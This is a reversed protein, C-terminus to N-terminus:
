WVFGGLEMDEENVLLRGKSDFILAYRVQTVSGGAGGYMTPSENSAAGGAHQTGALLSNSQEPEPDEEIGMQVCSVKVGNQYCTNRGLSDKFVGTYPPEAKTRYLMKSYPSSKVKKPRPGKWEPEDVLDGGSGSALWSMAKELSKWDQGELVEPSEVHDPGAAVSNYNENDHFHMPLGRGACTGIGRPLPTGNPCLKKEWARMTSKADWLACCNNENVPLGYLKPHGCIHGEGKEKVFLCNGCNTGSVDKPLTVFDYKEAEKMQGRPPVEGGQEDLHKTSYPSLRVSPNNPYKGRMPAQQYPKPGKPPEQLTFQQRQEETWPVWGERGACTGTGPPMPTGDPCLHQNPYPARKTSFFKMYRVQRRYEEPLKYEGETVAGTQLGQQAIEEPVDVYVLRRGPVKAFARAVGPLGREDSFYAHEHPLEGGRTGRYMRRMGQAPSPPNEDEPIEHPIPAVPEDGATGWGHPTSPEEVKPEAPQASQGEEMDKKNFFRRRGVVPEERDKPKRTDVGSVPAYDPYEAWGPKNNKDVVGDWSDAQRGSCTDSGYPRPTGNPCTIRKEMVQELANGMPNKVLEMQSEFTNNQEKLRWEEDNQLAMDQPSKRREYGMRLRREGLIDPKVRWRNYAQLYFVWEQPYDNPIGASADLGPQIYGKGSSPIEGGIHHDGQEIGMETVIPVNHGDCSNTNRDRPTGDPCTQQSKIHLSKSAKPFRTNIVGEVIREYDLKGAYPNKRLEQFWSEEVIPNLQTALTNASSPDSEDLIDPRYHKLYSFISRHSELAYWGDWFERVDGGWAPTGLASGPIRYNRRDYVGAYFLQALKPEKPFPLEDTPSYGANLGNEYAELEDKEFEQRYQPEIKIDWKNERPQVDKIRGLQITEGEPNRFVVFQGIEPPYSRKEMSINLPIALGGATQGRNLIQGFNKPDKIPVLLPLTAQQQKQKEERIKMHGFGPRIENLIAPNQQSAMVMNSVVDADEVWVAENIGSEGSAPQQGVWKLWNRVQPVASAYEAFKDAYRDDIWKGITHHIEESDDQQVPASEVKDQQLPEISQNSREVPVSPQQEPQRAQEPQEVQKPEETKPQQTGEAEDLDKKRPYNPYSPNQFSPGFYFLQGDREWHQNEGGSREWPEQNQIVTMGGPAEMHDNPAGAQTLSWECPAETCRWGPEGDQFAKIKHSGCLLCKSPVENKALDWLDIITHKRDKDSFHLKHFLLEHGPSWMGNLGQAYQEGMGKKVYALTLHPHYTPHTDTHELSEKLIKNLSHLDESEVDIKIVDYDKDEGGAFISVEGLKAYITRSHHRVWHEVVKKVEEPNESHIGYLCTVHHEKEKGDDALDDDSIRDQLEKIKELPSGQSRPYGAEALNFQTSSFKSKKEEPKSRLRREVESVIKSWEGRADVARDDIYLDAIPKGDNSGEPQHPNENIYDFVIGNENLWQRVLETNGRTTFIIIEYGRQKFAQMADKAGQRPKGFHEEGKWGDYEALTGDLDVALTPKHGDSKELSKLRHKPHDETLEPNKPNRGEGTGYWVPRMEETEPTQGFLNGGSLPTKAIQQNSRGPVAVVQSKLGKTSVCRPPGVAIGYRVYQHGWQDRDHWVKLFKLVPIPMLGKAEDGGENSMINELSPDQCFILGLAPGGVYVVSHGYDYAAEDDKSTAGHKKADPHKEEETPDGYEQLLIQCPWGIKWYHMLHELTMEHKDEVQLGLSKYFQVEKRPDTSYKRTTGLAKAISAVNKPGVGWYHCIMAVCCPHCWFDNPQAINKVPILGRKVDGDFDMASYLDPSYESSHGWAKSLSKTRYPSPRVSPLRPLPKPSM